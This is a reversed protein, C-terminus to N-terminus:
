TERDAICRVTKACQLHEPKYLACQPQHIHLLKISDFWIIAPLLWPTPRQKDSSQLVTSLPQRGESWVLQNPGHRSDAQLSSDDAGVTM